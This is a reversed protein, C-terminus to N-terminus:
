DGLGLRRIIETVKVGSERLSKLSTGDRSKSLKNGEGDLVLSHHFYVPEPLGLLRQLLRHVSTAHYLDQGRVVHTVGQLADDLVVALHYSAPYDKSVLVVDGWAKPDADVSAPTEEFTESAERWTLPGENKLRSLASGMDLRWSVQSGDALRRDREEQPMSREDGPYLPAGDPDRPWDTPKQALRERIERRSLFSPYILEERKLWDITKAYFGFHESQRRVPNEWRLGLWALDDLIQAEFRTRARTTDIDEIRVLLRGAYRDALQSNLLASYAHGLHLLGNPSPAFRFVPQTM